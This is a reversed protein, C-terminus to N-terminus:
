KVEEGTWKVIETKLDEYDILKDARLKLHYRLREPCMNVLMLRLNADLIRESTARSFYSVDEESLAIAVELDKAPVAKRPGYAKERLAM